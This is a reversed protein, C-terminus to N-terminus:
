SGKKKFLRGSSIAKHLTTQFVGLRESVVPVSNGEDLLAQAQTLLAPTLRAGERPKPPAFFGRPGQDRLLKCSRKITILPVTFARAIEGQSVTGREILQSTFMRFSALDNQAHQFVPLHGNFYFVAGDRCEFGIEANIAASGSPFIPLQVQPM